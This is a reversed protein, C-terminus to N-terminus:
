KGELTNEITKKISEIDQLLGKITTADSLNIKLRLYGKLAGEITGYYGLTIETPNGKNDGEKITKNEVLMVNRADSKLSYNKDIKINM